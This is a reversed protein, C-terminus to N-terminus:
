RQGAFWRADEEVSQEKYARYAEEADMGEEMFEDVGKYGDFSNQWSQITEETVVFQEPHECAANQYAHRMEHVVTSLLEYSDKVGNKGGNEIVWENIRVLHYRESYSGSVYGDPTGESYTFYIEGIQLGMVGAVEQLYDNLIEKKEETSANEWTKKSYRKKKLITSIENKMYKDMEKQQANTVAKGPTRVQKEAKIIGWSVFLSRIGQCIGEVFSENGSNNETNEQMEKVNANVSLIRNDANRYYSSIKELAGSLSRMGLAEDMVNKEIHMLVSNIRYSSSGM